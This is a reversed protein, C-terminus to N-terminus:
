PGFVLATFSTHSGYVTCGAGTASGHLKIVHNGAPVTVLWNRACTTRVATSHAEATQTTGDVIFVGLFTAGSTSGVDFTADLKVPTSPASTTFSVSAGTIDVNGLAQDATGVAGFVRLGSTSRAVTDIRAELEKLAQPLDEARRLDM